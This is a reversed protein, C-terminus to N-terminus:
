GLGQNVLAFCTAADTPAPPAGRTMAARSGASALGHAALWDGLGAGAPNDLRLAEGAHRTLWHGILLKASEEDPAVVPGIVRGAGATRCFSFGRPTGNADALVVAEGVPVLAEIVADRPMGKAAADLAKLAPLDGPALARLGLGLEPRGAAPRATGTYPRVTGTVRFGLSEYLPRGADTAALVMSRAGIDALAMAVLRRGIGLGQRDPAVIVMGLSSAAEGYLWWLASGVIVGRTEAVVGRGLDMVWRWDERRHAWGVATSLAHCGALDEVTVPRLCIDPSPVKAPM